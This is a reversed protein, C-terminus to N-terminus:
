LHNHVLQLNLFESIAMKERLAKMDDDIKCVNDEVCGLCAICGSIKKERLSILDYDCGTNELVTRVLKLVGSIEDKRPSGVIGLIKM